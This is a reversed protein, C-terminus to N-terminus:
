LSRRHMGELLQEFRAVFGATDFLPSAPLCATLRGRLANLQSSARDRAHEGALAIAIREYDVADNAVLEPLGAAVVLSAGVRSVFSEGPCTLVPLGVWLADSATTGANVTRTDLFLDALRHRALHEPKSRHQAFALRAPDVGASQAARRLNSEAARSGVMLWLVSGPVATLIRMWSAFLGREIKCAQNFGCFVVGQEPLGAVSRTPTEAAIAQANDNVQYCGPLRAIRESFDSALREPLCVEDAIFWDVFDAGSTGPYGLWFAQVPAPRLALIEPRTGGTYGGLDILVDIGDRAIRAASDEFSESGLDTFRDCGAAIRRRWTSGDDAGWTYAIVEFRSRDHREFMGATLHGIAHNRFDGSLYGIRIRGDQRAAPRLAAISARKPAAAASLGQAWHRALRLRFDPAVPLLQSVFPTVRAAWAEVPAGLHLADIEAVIRDVEDWECADMLPKVINVRVEPADPALALAERYHALAADVQGDFYLTNALNVRAGAHRADLEVARQLAALGEAFQRQEVLVMGLNSCAAAYGPRAALAARFAETAALLDGSQWLSIGRENHAAPDPGAEKNRRFAKLLLNLM